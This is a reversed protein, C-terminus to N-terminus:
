TIVSGSTASIYKVSGSTRLGLNRFQNASVNAPAIMWTIPYTVRSEFLTLRAWSEEM